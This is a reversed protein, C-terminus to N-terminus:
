QGVYYIINAGDRVALNVKSKRHIAVQKITRWWRLVSIYVETFKSVSHHSPKWASLPPFRGSEMSNSLHAACTQERGPSGSSGETQLYKHWFVSNEASLLISPHLHFSFPPLFSPFGFCFMAHYDTLLEMHGSSHDGQPAEARQGRERERVSKGRGGEKERGPKTGNFHGYFFLLLQM